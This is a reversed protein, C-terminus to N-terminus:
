RRSRGCCCIRECPTTRMRWGSLATTLQTSNANLYALSTQMAFAISQIMHFSHKRMRERPTREHNRV